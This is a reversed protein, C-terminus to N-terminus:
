RLLGAEALAGAVDECVDREIVSGLYRHLLETVAQVNTITADPTFEDRLLAACASCYTARSRAYGDDYVGSSTAGNPCDMTTCQM